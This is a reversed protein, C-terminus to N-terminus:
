NSAGIRGWAAIGKGARRVEGIGLGVGIAGVEGIGCEGAAHDGRVIGIREFPHECRGGTQEFSRCVFRLDNRMKLGSGPEAHEVVATAPSPAIGPLLPHHTIDSARRDAAGSQRWRYLARGV